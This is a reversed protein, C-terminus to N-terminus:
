VTSSTSVTSCTSLLFLIRYVRQLTAVTFSLTHLECKGYLYALYLGDSWIVRGGAGRYNTGGLSHHCDSSDWVISTRYVHPQVYPRPSFCPARLFGFLWIFRETQM